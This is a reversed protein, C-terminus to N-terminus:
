WKHEVPVYTSEKFTIDKQISDSVKKAKEEELIRQRELYSLYTMTQQSQLARIKVLEGSMFGMFENGAQLLHNRGEATEANKSLEELMKSSDNIDEATVGLSKATETARKEMLVSLEYYQQAFNTGWGYDSGLKGSEWSSHFKNYFEEDFNALNALLGNARNYMGIVRGIAGAVKVIQQAPLTATNTAFDKLMAVQNTIQTGQNTIQDLEHALSNNGQRVQESLYVKNDLQTWEKAGTAAGGGGAEANGSGCVPFFGCVAAIVAIRMFTKM